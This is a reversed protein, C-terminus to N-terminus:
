IGGQKTPPAHETDVAAGLLHLADHVSGLFSESEGAYLGEEDAVQIERADYEWRRLIEIKQDTSLTVDNAVAMPTSFISAPDTLARKIRDKVMTILILIGM